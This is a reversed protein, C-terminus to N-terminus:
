QVKDDVYGGLDKDSDLFRLIELYDTPEVHFVQDTESRTGSRQAQFAQIIRLCDRSFAAEPGTRPPTLPAGLISQPPTIVKSGIM